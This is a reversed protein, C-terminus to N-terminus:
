MGDDSRVYQVKGYASVDAMFQQFNEAAASKHRLFYVKTFRTAADRVMMTYKKGGISNMPKPGSLDVHSGEDRKVSQEPT